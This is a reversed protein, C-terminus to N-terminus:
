SFVGPIGGETEGDGGGRARAVEIDEIPLRLCSSEAKAGDGLRWQESGDGEAVGEMGGVEGNGAGMGVV